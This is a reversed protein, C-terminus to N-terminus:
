PRLAQRIRRGVLEAALSLAFSTLLLTTLVPFRFAALNEAFLRGLGAAGVIGVVATDRVCIEFRYLTYTLLHHASPPTMAAVAALTPRVGSGTLADRARADISEWAEAVLRGLIGGTYLGLAVAGPLVGPFLVLLAMIAWVTPPVSRLVLLVARALLRVAGRALASTRGGGRASRGPRRRTAWPGVLLTIAVAVVMALIAM